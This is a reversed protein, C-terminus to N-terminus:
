IPRLREGLEDTSIRDQLYDILAARNIKIFRHFDPEDRMRRLYAAPDAVIAASTSSLTTSMPLFM